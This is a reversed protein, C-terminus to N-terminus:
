DRSNQIRKSINLKCNNTSGIMLIGDNNELGDIQNLFYSRVDDKVLSDVDEFLLLCPAMRRAKEFIQRVSQQPGHCQQEFTKVYLTPVPDPMMLLTKIIAKVTMTKGNGPSGHFILGRKWPTGFRAYQERAGFFGVVDRMIAEKTAPELIIDDLDIDRVADASLESDPRWYGQDFVWVENNSQEAWKNAALLLADTTPSNGTRLDRDEGEEQEGEEASSGDTAKKLVYFFTEPDGLAGNQGEAVYVVFHEEQWVYDYAGFSVVDRLKGKEEEMKEGKGLNSTKKLRRAPPIYVRKRLLPLGDARPTATAHGAKAYKLLPSATVTLHHSRCSGRLTSQLITDTSVRTDATHFDYTVRVLEDPFGAGGEGTRANPPVIPIDYTDDGM